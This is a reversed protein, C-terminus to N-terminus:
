HGGHRRPSAKRRGMEPIETVLTEEGKVKKRVDRGLEAIGSIPRRGWRTLAMRNKAFQSRYGRQKHSKPRLTRHKGLSVALRAVVQKNEIFGSPTGRHCSAFLSFRIAIKEFPFRAM